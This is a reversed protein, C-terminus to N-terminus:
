PFMAKPRSSLLMYPFSLFSSCTLKKCSSANVLLCVNPPGKRVKAELRILGKGIMHGIHDAVKQETVAFSEGTGAKIHLTNPSVNPKEVHEYQLKVTAWEPQPSAPNTPLIYPVPYLILATLSLFGICVPTKPSLEQPVQPPPSPTGTLDIVHNSQSQPPPAQRSPPPQSPGAFPPRYPIHPIAGGNYINPPPSFMSPALTPLAMAPKQNYSTFTSMSPTGHSLAMPRPSAPEIIHDLRMRKLERPYDYREEDDGTLDITNSNNSISLNSLAPTTRSSMPPSFSSAM